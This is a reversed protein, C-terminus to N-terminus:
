YQHRDLHVRVVDAFANITNRQGPQEVEQLSREAACIQSVTRILVIPKTIDKEVNRSPQM